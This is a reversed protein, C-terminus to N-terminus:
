TIMVEARGETNVIILMEVGKNTCGGDGRWWNINYSWVNTSVGGSKEM